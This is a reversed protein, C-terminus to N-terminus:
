FAFFNSNSIFHILIYQCYYMTMGQTNKILDLNHIWRQTIVYSGGNHDVAVAKRDDEDAPNETGDIFGSLDKGNEYVFSFVDEFKDISNPPFAGVVQKALEFLNSYSDSKAHIFIDGGTSPM